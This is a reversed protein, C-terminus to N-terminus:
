RMRAALRDAGRRRKAVPQGLGPRNETFAAWAAWWATLAFLGAVATIAIWAAPATQIRAEIDSWTKAGLPDFVLRDFEPWTGLYLMGVSVLTAGIATYLAQARRQGIFQRLVFIPALIITGLAIWFYVPARGAPYDRDAGTHVCYVLIGAIILIQAAWVWDSLMPKEARRSLPANPDVQPKRFFLWALEPNKGRTEDQAQRAM